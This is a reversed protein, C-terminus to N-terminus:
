GLVGEIWLLIEKLFLVGFMMTLIIACTIIQKVAQWPSHRIMELYTPLDYNTSIEGDPHVTWRKM